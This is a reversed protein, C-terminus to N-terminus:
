QVKEQQLQSSAGCSAEVTIPRVIVPIGGRLGLPPRAQKRYGFPPWAVIPPRLAIVGRTCPPGGSRIQSLGASRIFHEGTPSSRTRVQKCCDQPLVPKTDIRQCIVDKQASALQMQITAINPIYHWRQGVKAGCKKAVCARNDDCKPSQTRYGGNSVHDAVIRRRYGKRKSSVNCVLVTV